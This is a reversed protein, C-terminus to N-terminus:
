YFDRWSMGYTVMGCDVSCFGYRMGYEDRKDIQLGCGSCKFGSDVFKHPKALWKKYQRKNM